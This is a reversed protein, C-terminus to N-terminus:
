DLSGGFYKLHAECRCKKDWPRDCMRILAVQADGEVRAVPGSSSVTETGTFNDWWSAVTYVDCVPCLFFSDTHEDGMISGSISAIRHEAAFSKGCQSCQIVEGSSSGEQM